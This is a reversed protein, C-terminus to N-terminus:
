YIGTIVVVGEDTTIELDRGEFQSIDIGGFSVGRTFKVGPTMTVGGIRITQRPEISGDPNVTFISDFSVRAM